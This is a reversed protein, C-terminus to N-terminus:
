SSGLPLRPGPIRLDGRRRTVGNGDMWGVLPLIFKRTTQLEDRIQAVTLGGPHLQFLKAVRQAAADLASPAFYIGDASIVLKRRVLERLEARDVDAGDPPQWPAAELAAIFPHGALPDQVEGRRIRGDILAIGEEHLEPLVARAHEGLQAPDLGLGGAEDTRTRIMDLERAFASESVAWRGAM